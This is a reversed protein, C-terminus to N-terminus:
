SRTRNQMTKKMEMKWKWTMIEIVYNKISLLKSGIAVSDGQLIWFKSCIVFSYGTGDISFFFTTSHSGM